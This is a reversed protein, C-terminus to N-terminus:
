LCGVAKMPLKRLEKLGGYTYNQINQLNQASISGVM